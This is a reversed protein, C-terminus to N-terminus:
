AAKRTDPLLVKRVLDVANEAGVKRMIRQRHDEVTRVSRHLRRAIQKNSMGALILTLVRHQIRTLGLGNLNLCSAFHEESVPIHRPMSLGAAPDDVCERRLHQLEEEATAERVCGVLGVTQGREDARLQLRDCCWRWQGFADKWRYEIVSCRQTPDTQRGLEEIAEGIGALDEPHCRARMGSYGARRWEDPGFGTLEEVHPSVYSFTDARLDAEYIVMRERRLVDAHMADLHRLWKVEEAASKVRAPRAFPLIIPDTM